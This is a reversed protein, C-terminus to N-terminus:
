RNSRKRALRRTETEIAQDLGGVAQDELAMSHEVGLVNKKAQVRARDEILAQMNEARPVLAYVLYCDLANALM